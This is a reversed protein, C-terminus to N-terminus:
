VYIYISDDSSNIYINGFGNTSGGWTPSASPGGASKKATVVFENM